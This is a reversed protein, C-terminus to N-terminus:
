QEDEEDYDDPEDGIGLVGRFFDLAPCDFSAAVYAGEELAAACREEDTDPLEEFVDVLGGILAISM